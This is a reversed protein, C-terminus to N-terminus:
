MRHKTKQIGMRLDQSMKDLESMSHGSAELLANNSLSAEPNHSSPAQYKPEVGQTDDTMIAQGTASEILAAIQFLSNLPTKLLTVLDVSPHSNAIAIALAVSPNNRNDEVWERAQIFRERFEADNPVAKKLIEQALITYSGANQMELNRPSIVAIDIVADDLLAVEKPFKKTIDTLSAMELPTLTRYIITQQEINISYLGGCGAKATIIDKTFM